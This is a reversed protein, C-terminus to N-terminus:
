EPPLPRSGDQWTLALARKQNGRQSPVRHQHSGRERGTGPRSGGSCSMADLVEPDELTHTLRDITAEASREPTGPDIYRLLEDQAEEISSLLVSLPPVSVKSM